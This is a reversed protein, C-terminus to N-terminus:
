VAFLSISKQFRMLCPVTLTFVSYFVLTFFRLFMLGSDTRHRTPSIAEPSGNSVCFGVLAKQPEPHCLPLVPTPEIDQLLCPKPLGTRCAFFSWRKKRSLTVFLHPAATTIVPNRAAVGFVQRSKLVGAATGRSSLRGGGTM